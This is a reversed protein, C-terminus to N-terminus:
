EPNVLQIQGSETAEIGPRNFGETLYKVSGKVDITQGMYFQYPDGVGARKFAARASNPIAIAFVKAKTNARVLSSYLFVSGDADRERARVTLRVTRTQGIQGAALYDPIVSRPNLGALPDFGELQPPSIPGPAPPFFRVYGRYGWVTLIVVLLMVGTMGLVHKRRLNRTPPALISLPPPTAAFTNSVSEVVSSAKDDLPESLISKGSSPSGCSSPPPSLQFAEPTTTRNLFRQVAPCLSPLEDEKLLPCPGDWPALAAVVEAPSAFRDAPEKAMMRMLVAELEDPVDDRGSRISPPQRVQHWLMKQAITGDEFPARGALLFYFTAGLSYIDAQINVQHSDLVQEPALYDATGLISGRMHEQTLKDQTDRFFRALGMDLIKVTGQRDLLINGPKIDRHILGQECFHQLGRAAQCICSVARSFTFAGRDEVLQQLSHGHVYEMVIFEFDADDGIDFARVLNPHSLTAAARAERHFRALVAADVVKEPPLVKVAIPTGLRIHECLFVRGMGGSGLLELIRYKGGLLFGQWRSRMLQRAQFHTLLGDAILRDALQEATLTGGASADIAELFGALRAEDVLQSKRLCELFQDASSPSTM